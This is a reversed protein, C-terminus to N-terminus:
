IIALPTAAWFHLGGAEVVPVVGNALVAINWKIVEKKILWSCRPRDPALWIPDVSTLVTFRPADGRDSPLM